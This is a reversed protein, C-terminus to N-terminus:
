IQSVRNRGAHKSAYLAGDVAHLFAEPSDHVDTMQGVGLSVTVAIAKGDFAFSEAEIIARVKEAFLVAHALDTEPLVVTFEEGGYRAFLEETRVRQAVVRALNRLVYDGATHGFTDNIRKFHDIDFMVLSLARDYRRCRAMERATFEYLYRKNHIETLGDIITMRYIEEFYLTELDSGALFKFITSGVKVLDGSNLFRDKQLARDNVYTGNTSGKDRIVVREEDCELEAHYRSVNDFPLVIDNMDGRGLTMLHRDLAYRRGINEGYIQVMVATQSAPPRGPRHVHTDIRTDENFDAEKL